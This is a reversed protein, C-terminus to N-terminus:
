LGGGRGRGPEIKRAAGRREGLRHRKGEGRGICRACSGGERERERERERHTGVKVPFSTPNKFQFEFNSSSFSSFPKCPPPAPPPLAVSGGEGEGESLRSAAEAGSDGWVDGRGAGLKPKQARARAGRSRPGGGRHRSRSPHTLPPPPNNPPLRGIAEPFPFRNATARTANSQPAHPGVVVVVLSLLLLVLSPFLSLSLCLSSRHQGQPISLFPRSMAAERRVDPGHTPGPPLSSLLRVPRIAESSGAPPAARPMCAFPNRSTPIPIARRGVKRGGPRRPVCLTLSLAGRRAAGARGNNRRDDVVRM